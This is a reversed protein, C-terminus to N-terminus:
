PIAGRLADKRTLVPVGYTLALRSVYWDYGGFTLGPSYVLCAVRAYEARWGYAHTWVRGGLYVGGHVLATSWSSNAYDAYNRMGYIGCGYGRNHPNHNPPGPIKRHRNKVTVVESSWEAFEVCLCRAILGDVPWVTDEFISSLRLDDDDDVSWNWGRWALIPEALDPTPRSRGRGFQHDHESTM